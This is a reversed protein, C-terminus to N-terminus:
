LLTYLDWYWQSIEEGWVYMAVAAVAIFPGFPIFTKADEQRHFLRQWGGYLIGLVSAAFLVFITSELGLFLGIVAFLKIDGGGMGGNSIMGLVLLLGGAALSSVAYNWLPLPSSWLLRILIISFAAFALVRDPIIRQKIDTHVIVVLVAAFLWAPLLEAQWGWRWAFLAFLLGTALEGLPYVASIRAKCSRCKGGLLVYSIVPILDYYHIRTKCHVCHSPPYVFSQGNLLRIAVVNLFSGLLHGFLGAAVMLVITEESM